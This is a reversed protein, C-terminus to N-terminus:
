KWWFGTQSVYQSGGGTSCEVMKNEYICKSCKYISYTTEKDDYNCFPRDNFTHETDKRTFIMEGFCNNEIHINNLVKSTIGYCKGEFEIFDNWRELKQIKEIISDILKNYDQIVANENDVEKYIQETEQLYETANIDILSEFLVSLSYINHSYNIMFRQKLESHIKGGIKIKRNTKYNIGDKWKNYDNQLETNKSMENFKEFVFHNYREQYNKETKKTPHYREITQIQSTQNSSNTGVSLARTPIVIEPLTKKPQNPTSKKCCECGGACLKTRIIPSKKMM